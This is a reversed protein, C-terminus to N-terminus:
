KKNDLPAFLQGVITNQGVMQPVGKDKMVEILKAQNELAMKRLTYESYDKGKTAAMISAATAAARAKEIDRQNLATQAAKESRATVLHDLSEQITPSDWSLDGKLGIRNLTIGRPTCYASVEKRVAAMIVDKKKLLEELTYHAVQEVFKQEAIPRVDTDMVESLPKGTYSQLFLSADKESVQCSCSVRATFSTSESTEAKFGQNTANTGTEKSETWERTEPTLSVILLAMTPIWKGSNEYRDTQMWRHPIQIRRTAVKKDKLFEQSDWQAQKKTDGELPVLFATQNAAIDVYQPADYIRRDCGTIFLLGIMVLIGLFRRHLNNLKV